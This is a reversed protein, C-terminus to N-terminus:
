SQIHIHHVPRGEHCVKWSECRWCSRQLETSSTETLHREKFWESFLCVVGVGIGIGWVCDWLCVSASCVPETLYPQKKNKTKQRQQTNHVLCAITKLTTAPQFLCSFLLVCYASAGKCLEYRSQIGRWLRLNGATWGGCDPHQGVETVHM